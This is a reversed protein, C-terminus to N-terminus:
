IDIDSIHEDVLTDIMNIPANPIDAILDHRIAELYKFYNIEDAVSDDKISKLYGSTVHLKLWMVVESELKEQDAIAEQIGKSKSMVYIGTIFFGLFMILMVVQSFRNNFLGFIPSDFLELMCILCYITGLAGFSLCTYASFKYDKYKDAQRVYPIMSEEFEEDPDIQPVLDHTHIVEDNDLIIEEVDNDDTIESMEDDCIKDTEEFTEINNCNSEIDNLSTDDSLDQDLEVEDDSVSREAIAFGVFLKHAADYDDAHVTVTYLAEEDNVVFHRTIGSFDLYNVFKEVLSNDETSFVTVYNATDNKFTEFSDVLEVNCDACVVIGERYENKCKPCWPM